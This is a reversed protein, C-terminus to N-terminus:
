NKKTCRLIERAIVKNTYNFDAEILNITQLNQVLNGKDKKEIMTNISKKQEELSHGIAHLIHCITAKFDALKDLLSCAKLYSFHIGSIGTSTQKKM